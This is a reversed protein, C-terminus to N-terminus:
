AVVPVSTSPATPQFPRMETPRARRHRVHIRPGRELRREHRRPARIRGAARQGLIRKAARTRATAQTPDARRHHLPAHPIQARQLLPLGLHERRRNHRDHRPVSDDLRRYRVAGSVETEERVTLPHTGAAAVTLGVADLERALLSRLSPLEAVAGSVNPHMGTALEVVAAHTEPSTHPALEDSLRALVEDSSQAPSWDSPELLM